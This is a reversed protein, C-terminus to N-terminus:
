SEPCPVYESRRPSLKLILLYMLAGIIFGIFWAVTYISSFFGPVDKVFGAAELFGPLSPLAGALMSVLAAVNYGGTFWYKDKPDTSYLADVDLNMKEVLYFDALFIGTMPGLLASYGILWTFIYGQTSSILKWPLLLAGIVSTVVAAIPFTFLRPSLNVLANAPAVVNAALNTSITAIVVGILGLTVAWYGKMKALVEIPSTLVEGFIVTTASTVLIGMFSFLAMFLPLGVGQGVAQARQSKAYRTFDPINLALTAWYGINATLSPWFTKWFQGEKAMGVGFESPKSMMPGFGGASTVAWIMLALSLSILLPASYREVFQISDMGKTLVLVQFLWFFVFCSLQLGTIDFFPLPPHTALSPAFKIVLNSIADACIWTQIGFWGCAVLGRLLAAVNAGRVGFSSRALVPFPIGYKTGAFGNLLVPVLVIANGTFVTLVAQWWSMGLDVLSAALSYSTISVVLGIWLGLFDWGTFKRDEVATPKLDENILLPSPDSPQKVNLACCAVRSPIVRHGLMAPSPKQRSLRDRHCRPLISSISRLVSSPTRIASLRASPRSPITDM